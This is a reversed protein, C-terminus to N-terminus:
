RRNPTMIRKEEDDIKLIVGKLDAPAYRL